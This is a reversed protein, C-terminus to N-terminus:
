KETDKDKVIKALNKKHSAGLYLQNAEIDALELPTKGNKTKTQINAGNDVLYKM